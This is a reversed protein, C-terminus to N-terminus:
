MYLYLTYIYIIYITYISCVYIYIHIYINKNYSIYLIYIYIYSHGYILYVGAMSIPLDSVFCQFQPNWMELCLWIRLIYGSGDGTKLLYRLGVKKRNPATTLVQGRQKCIARTRYRKKREIMPNVFHNAHEFHCTQPHWSVKWPNYIPSNSGCSALCKFWTGISLHITPVGYVMGNGLWLLPDDYSDDWIDTPTDRPIGLTM